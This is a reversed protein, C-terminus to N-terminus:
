PSAAEALHRRISGAHNAHGLKHGDLWGGGVNIGVVEGSRNLIPAGSSYPTSVQADEYRFVFTKESREVTVAKVIRRAPAEMPKAALWVPEGVEPPREALRGPTLKGAGATRFAAVDNYSLPEDEGTRASPLVLMPGASGLEARIWNAAFVDYLVVQTVVAPLERGSYGANDNTTDVGKKKILEDMIHLATLILPNAEGPVAVVFAYSSLYSEHGCCFEPRVVFHDPVRPDAVAPHPPDLWALFDDRPQGQSSEFRHESLGLTSAISQEAPHAAEGRQYKEYCAECLDNDPGAPCTMCTFRQGAIPRAGCNHCRYWLHILNTPSSM